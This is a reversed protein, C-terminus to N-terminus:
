DSSASRRGRSTVRGYADVFGRRRLEAYDESSTWYWDGASGTALRLWGLASKCTLWRNWALRRKKKMSAM